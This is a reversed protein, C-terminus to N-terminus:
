RRPPRRPHIRHLRESPFSGVLLTMRLSAFSVYGPVAGKAERLTVPGEALTVSGEAGEHASAGIACGLVQV